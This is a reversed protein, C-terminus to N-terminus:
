RPTSRRETKASLTKRAFPNSTPLDMRPSSRVSSSLWLSANEWEKLKSPVTNKSFWSLYSYGRMLGPLEGLETYTLKM